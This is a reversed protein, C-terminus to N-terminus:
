PARPVPKPFCANGVNKANAASKECLLTSSPVHRCRRPRIDFCRGLGMPFQGVADIVGGEGNPLLHRRM